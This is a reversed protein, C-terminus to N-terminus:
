ERMRGFCLAFCWFMDCCGLNVKWFSMSIWSSLGYFGEPTINFPKASEKPSFHADILSHNRTKTNLKNGIISDTSSYGLLLCFHLVSHNECIWSRWSSFPPSTRLSQAYLLLSTSHEVRKLPRTTGTKYSSLPVSWSIAFEGQFDQEFHGDSAWGALFWQQRLMGINKLKCCAIHQHSM